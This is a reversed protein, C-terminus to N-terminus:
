KSFDHNIYKVYIHADDTRTDIGASVTGWQFNYSVSVEDRPTPYYIMYTREDPPNKFSVELLKKHFEHRLKDDLCLSKSANFEPRLSAVIFDHLHGCKFCISAYFHEEQKLIISEFGYRSYPENQNQPKSALFLSSSLFDERSFKPTITIQPSEIEITGDSHIM